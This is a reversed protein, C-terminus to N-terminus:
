PALLARPLRGGKRSFVGLPQPLPNPRPAPPWPGQDGRGFLRAPANRSSNNGPKSVNERYIPANESFSGMSHGSGLGGTGQIKDALDDGVVQGRALVAPNHGAKRGLGVAVQVDAVGLGDAEIEADGLLKPPRHLRRKSSVLGVLSSCSYTSEMMASTRQSPKSQSSRRNKRRPSNRASTRSHGHVQDLRALGVDAVQGGLLDPLVPAGEGLRPFVAGVAVARMSSFRSRNRRMRAPSNGSPACTSRALISM